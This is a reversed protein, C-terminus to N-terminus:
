VSFWPYNRVHSLGDDEPGKAPNAKPRRSELQATLVAADEPTRSNCASCIRVSYESRILGETCYRCRPYVKVAATANEM